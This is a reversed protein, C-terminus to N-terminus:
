EITSNPSLSRDVTESIKSKLTELPLPFIGQANVELVIMDERDLTPAIGILTAGWPLESFVDEPVDIGTVKDVILYDLPDDVFLTLQLRMSMAVSVNGAFGVVWRSAKLLRRDRHIRGSKSDMEEGGYSHLSGLFMFGDHTHIHIDPIESFITENPKVLGDDTPILFIRFPFSNILDEFTQLSADDQQNSFSGILVVLEIPVELYQNLRSELLLKQDESSINFNGVSLCAFYYSSDDVAVDKNEMACAFLPMIFIPLICLIWAIKIPLDYCV